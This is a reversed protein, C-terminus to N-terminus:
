DNEQNKKKTKILKLIKKVTNEKNSMIKLQRKKVQNATKTKM